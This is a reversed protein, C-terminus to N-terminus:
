GEAGEFAYVFVGRVGSYFDLTPTQLRSGSSVKSSSTQSKLNLTVKLNFVVTKSEHSM